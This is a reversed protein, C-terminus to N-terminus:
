RRLPAHRGSPSSVAPPSTRLRHARSSSGPSTASTSCGAASRNPSNSTSLLTASEPGRAFDSAAAVADYGNTHHHALYERESDYLESGDTAVTVIVDDRGLGRDKAITIAALANAIASYSTNCSCTSSRPELGVRDVLHAKGVDTNFLADLADTM